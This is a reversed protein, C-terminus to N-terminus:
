DINVAALAKFDENTKLGAKVAANKNYEFKLKSDLTIFNISAGSKCGGPAESVVLAGKNKNKSAADGISRSAEPTLFIIHSTIGPDFSLSNKIEIEQNGVKKKGALNKLETILNENKGVVYIIFNDVKKNDPWEFYRTYNYIFM